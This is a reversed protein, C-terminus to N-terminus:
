MFRYKVDAFRVEDGPLLVRKEKYNIFSENVYTGNTSNIDEILYENEVCEIKAHIHSITDRNIQHNASSSKGITFVDKNIEIDALSESGIYIFKGQATVKWNSLCVTPHIRKEEREAMVYEPYVVMPQTDEKHLFNKIHNKIWEVIKVYKEIMQQNVDLKVDGEEIMTEERLYEESQICVEEKDARHREELLIRRVDSIAYTGQLIYEYIRYAVAVLDQNKHDIKALLFEIFCEMKEFITEEKEPYLVFFISEKRADIFIYEPYLMLCDADILNWELEELCNCLSILIQEFVIMGIENDKCFDDLAQKGTIDYWYFPLEMEYNKKCSITGDVHKELIRREDFNDETQAPLKMYSRHIDREYTANLEM